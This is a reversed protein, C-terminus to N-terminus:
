EAQSRARRGREVSDREAGWAETCREVMVAEGEVGDDGATGM